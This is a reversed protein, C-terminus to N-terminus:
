TPQATLKANVQNFKTTFLTPLGTVNAAMRGKVVVAAKGSYKLAIGALTPIMYRKEIVM